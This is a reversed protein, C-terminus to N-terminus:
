EESRRERRECRCLVLHTSEAVRSEQDYGHNEGTQHFRVGGGGFPSRFRAAAMAILILVALLNRTMTHRRLDEQRSYSLISKSTLRNPVSPHRPNHDSGRLM